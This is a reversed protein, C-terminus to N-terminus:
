DTLGIDIGTVPWWARPSGLGARACFSYPTASLPDAPERMHRQTIHRQLGSDTHVIRLSKHFIGLVM